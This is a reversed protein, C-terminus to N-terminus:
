PQAAEPIPATKPLAVTVTTGAGAESRFRVEGGNAQVLAQVISLGLGTGDATRYAHRAQFFPAGIKGLTEEDMGIGTDIVSIEVTAETEVIEV